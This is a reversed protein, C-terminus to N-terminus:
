ARFGRRRELAEVAAQMEKGRGMKYTPRARVPLVYRYFPIRRCYPWQKLDTATLGLRESEAESASPLWVEGM